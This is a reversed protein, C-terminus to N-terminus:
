AAATDDASLQRHEQIAKDLALEPVWGMDRLEEFRLLVWTAEECLPSAPDDAAARLARLRFEHPNAPKTQTAM